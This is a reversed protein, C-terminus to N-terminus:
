YDNGQLKVNVNTNICLPNKGSSHHSSFHAEPYHTAILVMYLKLTNDTWLIHWQSFIIWKPYASVRILEADVKPEHM